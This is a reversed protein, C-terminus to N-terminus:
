RYLVRKVRSPDYTRVRSRGGDKLGLQQSVKRAREAESSFPLVNSTGEFTGENARTKALLQDMASAASQLGAPPLHAYCDMTLRTSAHGVLGAIIKENQGAALLLSVCVHRLSHFTIKPLEAAILLPHFARRIFNSKRIPGGEPALFVYSEPDKSESLEELERLATSAEVSLPVRRVSTRTKTTLCVGYLISGCM